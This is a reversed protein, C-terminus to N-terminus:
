GNGRVIRFNTRAYQGHFYDAWLDYALAAHHENEFYGIFYQKRNKSISAFYKNQYHAKTCVGKYKNNGPKKQSNFSNQQNTVLRLNSKQNDTGEGNIHDVVLGRNRPLVLHHMAVTQNNSDKRYAHGTSYHWKWQNLYEYDEDDVKAYKGKTLPILKM